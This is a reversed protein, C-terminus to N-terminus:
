EKYDTMIVTDGIGCGDTIFPDIRDINEETLVVAHGPECNLLCQEQEEDECGLGCFLNKITCVCNNASVLGGFGNTKLYNYIISKVTIM